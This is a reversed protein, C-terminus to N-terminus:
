TYTRSTKRTLPNVHLSLPPQQCAAHMMCTAPRSSAFGILNEAIRTNASAPKVIVAEACFGCFVLVFGDCLSSLSALLFLARTPLSGAAPRVEAAWSNRRTSCDLALTEGPRLLASVVLDARLLGTNFACFFSPFGGM